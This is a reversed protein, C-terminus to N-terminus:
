SLKEAVVYSGLSVTATGSTVKAIQLQLNGAFTGNQIGGAIRLYNTQGVFTNFAASLTGATVIKDVLLTSKAAGSGNAWAQFGAGPPVTLAIKLGATTDSGITLVFEFQWIEGNASLPFALQPINVATLSTTTFDPTVFSFIGM